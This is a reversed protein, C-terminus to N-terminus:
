VSQFGPSMLLGLAFGLIGALVVLLVWSEDSRYWTRPTVRGPRVMSPTPMPIGRPMHDRVVLQSRRRMSEAADALTHAQPDYLTLQGIRDEIEVILEELQPRLEDLRERGGLALDSYQGSAPHSKGRM